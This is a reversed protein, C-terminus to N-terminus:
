QAKVVVKVLEPSISAHTFTDGANDNDRFVTFYMRRGGAGAPSVTVTSKKMAGPASAVAVTEATTGSTMLGPNDSGTGDAAVILYKVQWVVDGAAEAARWHFDFTITDATEPLEVSQQMLQTYANSFRAVGYIVGDSGLFCDPTPVLTASSSVNWALSGAAAQCIAAPYERVLGSPAATAGVISVMQIWGTRTGIYLSGNGERIHFKGLGGPTTPAGIDSSFLPVQTEDISIQNDVISIGPGPTYRLGSGCPLGTDGVGATTWQVCNGPVGLANAAVPRSGTGWLVLPAASTGPVGQPGMPGVPGVPGPNAAILSVLDPQDSINGLIDGWKVTPATTGVYEINTKIDTIQAPMTGSAPIPTFQITAKVTIPTPTQGQAKVDTSLLATAIVIPLFLHKM